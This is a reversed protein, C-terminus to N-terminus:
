VMGEATSWFKAESDMRKVVEAYDSIHGDSTSGHSEATQDVDVMTTKRSDVDQLPLFGDETM